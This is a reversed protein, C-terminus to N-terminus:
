RSFGPPFFWQPSLPQGCKAVLARDLLKSSLEHRESDERRSPKGYIREGAPLRQPHRPPLRRSVESRGRSFSDPLGRGGTPADPPVGTNCQCIAGVCARFVNSRRPFHDTRGGPRKWEKAGRGPKACRFLLGLLPVTSGGAPDNCLEAVAGSSDACSNSQSQGCM